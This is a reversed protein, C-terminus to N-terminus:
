HQPKDLKSEADPGCYKNLYFAGRLVLIAGFLLVALYFYSAVQQCGFVFFWRGCFLLLLILNILKTSLSQSYKLSFAFIEAAGVVTAFLLVLAAIEGVWFSIVFLLVCASIVSRAMLRFQNKEM